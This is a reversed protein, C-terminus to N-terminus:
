DKKNYYLWEFEGIARSKIYDIDPDEEDEKTHKIWRSIYDQQVRGILVSEIKEKDKSSEITGVLGELIVRVTPFYEAEDDIFATEAYEAYKDLIAIGIKIHNDMLRDVPEKM